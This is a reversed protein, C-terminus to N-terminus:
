DPYIYDHYSFDEKPLELRAAFVTGDWEFNSLITRPTSQDDQYLTANRSSLLIEGRMGNVIMDATTRLGFGRLMGTNPRTSKGEELAFRLAEEDSSIEVGYNEYSGPITIGDDVVCIDLFEKKPYYQVLLTGLDCDSHYDVNDVIESIPYVVGTQADEWPTGEIQKKVLKRIKSGVIEFTDPGEEPEMKCLPLSNEVKDPPNAFGNPFGIKDLYTKVGPHSPFEFEIEIGQSNYIESIPALFTPTFWEAQSLDIVVKEPSSGYLENKTKLAARYQQPLSDNFLTKPTIREAMPNPM